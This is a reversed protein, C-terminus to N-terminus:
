RGLPDDTGHQYNVMVGTPRVAPLRSVAAVLAADREVQLELVRTRLRAVEHELELIRRVGEVGIGSATLRAM